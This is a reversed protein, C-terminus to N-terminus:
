NNIQASVQYNVTDKMLIKQYGSITYSALHSKGNKVTFSASLERKNQYLANEEEFLGYFGVVKGENDLAIKLSQVGADITSKKTYAITSGKNEPISEQEYAGVLVAKNIDMNIFMSLEKTWELSDFSLTKEETQKDISATKRFPINEMMKAQEAFLGAVDFYASVKNGSSSSDCGGLSLSLLLIGCITKKM